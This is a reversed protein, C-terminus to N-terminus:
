AKQCRLVQKYNERWDNFVSITKAEGYDPYTWELPRYTGSSYILTLDAYIGSGMYIRHAYGKTTALIVNELSIYGPDINVSRRRNESFASEIENTRLKIGPLLDRPFLEKFLVFVRLLGKGMEKEYYDTQSFVAPPMKQEIAGVKDELMKLAGQFPAEEKFILSAFLKVPKPDKPTGM